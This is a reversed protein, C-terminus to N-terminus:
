LPAIAKKGITSQSSANKEPLELSSTRLFLQPVIVKYFHHSPSSHLSRTCHPAHPAVFTYRMGPGTMFPFTCEEGRHVEDPQEREQPHVM